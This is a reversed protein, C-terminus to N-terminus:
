EVGLFKKWKKTELTKAIQTFTKGNDNMEALKEQLSIRTFFDTSPNLKFEVLDKLLGHRRLRSQSINCLNGLVGLCCYQKRGNVTRLLIGKGQAYKNSKLAKIWKNYITKNFKM